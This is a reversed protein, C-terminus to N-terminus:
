GGTTKGEKRRVVEGFYRVGKGQYPEAPQAARLEAAYQGVMQKCSGRVTICALKEEGGGGEIKYGIEGIEVTVGEPARVPKINAFGLKLMVVRKDKKDLEAKYGLGYVVLRREFGKTVGDVMNSVLTRTLGHVSRSLRDDNARTVEIKRAALDLNVRVLGHATHSLTGKPGKVDVKQGTVKVDVGVPLIIPQKGIRSM